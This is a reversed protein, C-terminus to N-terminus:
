QACGDRMDAVWKDIVEDTTQEGLCLSMCPPHQGTFMNWGRKELLWSLQYINVGSGEAAKMPVIAAVPDVLLDM